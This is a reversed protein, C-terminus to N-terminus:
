TQKSTCTNRVHLEHHQHGNGATQDRDSQRIRRGVSKYKYQPEVEGHAQKSGTGTKSEGTKNERPIEGSFPLFTYFAVVLSGLKPKSM